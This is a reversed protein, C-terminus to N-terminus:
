TEGGQSVAECGVSREIQSHHLFQTAQAKGLRQAGLQAIQLASDALRQYLFGSLLLKLTPSPGWVAESRTGVATRLRPLHRGCTVATAHGDGYPAPHRLHRGPGIIHM